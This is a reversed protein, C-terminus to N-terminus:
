CFSPLFLLASFFLIHLHISYFSKTFYYNIKQLNYFNQWNQKLFFYGFLIMFSLPFIVITCFVYLSKLSNHVIIHWCVPWSSSISLHRFVYLKHCFQGITFLPISNIMFIEWCLFTWYWIENTFRGFMFFNISTRKFEGLYQLSLFAKFSM